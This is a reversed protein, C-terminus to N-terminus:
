GYNLEGGSDDIKTHGTEPQFALFYRYRIEDKQHQGFTDKGKLARINYDRPFTPSKEGGLV